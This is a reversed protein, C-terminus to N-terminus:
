FILTGPHYETEATLMFERGTVVNMKRLQYKGLLCGMGRIYEMEWGAAARSGPRSSQAMDTLGGLIQLTKESFVGGVQTDTPLLLEHSHPEECTLHAGCCRLVLVM